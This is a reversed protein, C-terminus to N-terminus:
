FISRVKPERDWIRGSAATDLFVKPKAGVLVGADAIVGAKNLLPQAGSTAGIVKCHAFADHVWAIAAAEKMLAYCGDASLAVFVADFLVSSGGALQLDAKITEGGAAEAGGVKPAVVSFDAKAKKVASELASVVSGETGDAVLCGVRRGELTKKAKGL